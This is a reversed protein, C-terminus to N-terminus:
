TNVREWFEACRFRPARRQQVPDREAWHRARLQVEVAAPRFPRGRQLVVLNGKRRNPQRWGGGGGWMGSLDPHGDATRPTPVNQPQQAGAPAPHSGCWRVPARRLPVRLCAAAAAAAIGFRKLQVMQIIRLFPSFTMRNNPDEHYMTVTRGDAFTFTVVRGTPVTVRPLTTVKLTQRGFICMGNSRLAQPGAGTIEL